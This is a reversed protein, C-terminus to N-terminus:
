KNKSNKIKKTFIFNKLLPAALLIFMVAFKSRHRIGTGFNGVGIGFVFLYTLLIILIVRLAPDRWIIKINCSILYILYVYIFADFMGILHATKKIDWPFPAFVLYISRIPAKYLLEIPSNIITWKPWSANGKTSQSTKDLIRQIKVSKQFSGLYPITVKDSFYVVSSAILFLIIILTKLNINFRIISKFFQKLSTIGIIIMFIIAGVFIAGHFFTAGTFGIMGLIISKFNKTKIWDVVGYLALLTFFCVNVERMTLVSYLILSPFLATTWGVKNAIRSDWIKNAILYSLFVSGMGFFLSISKAMLISRGLLSYPVALFWTIFYPDPGKFQSVVFYFGEQGMEWAKKEFSAADATSDPLSIIYHGLLLFFVRVILAVFLLNRIAPRRLALYLTMLSVLSIGMFGLLNAM